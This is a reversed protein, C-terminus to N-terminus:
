WGRLWMSGALSVVAVVYVAIGWAANRWKTRRAYKTCVRLVAPDPRPTM